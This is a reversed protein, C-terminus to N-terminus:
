YQPRSCFQVSLMLESLTINGMGVIVFPTRWLLSPGQAFEVRAIGLSLCALVMGVCRLGCWLTAAASPTPGRTTHMKMHQCPTPM